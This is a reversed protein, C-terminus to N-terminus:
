AKKNYDSMIKSVYNKTENPMKYIESANHVGRQQITGSGANYAALAMEKSNSYMDLLGKLYKTGGDVNQSVDFSNTVGLEKATGPMLQMLGQAGANSQANADFSSEQKIVSMILAKDVNYKKSAADVAADINMNGSKVNTSVDQKLNTLQDTNGVSVSDQSNSGGNMSSVLSELVNQFGTGDSQSSSKMLQVMLQLELM